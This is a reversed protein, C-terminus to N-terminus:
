RDTLEFERYTISPNGGGGQNAVALTIRYRGASLNSLDLSVAYTSTGGVASRADTWHMKLPSDQDALGVRQFASRLFGHDVREVSLSVETSDNAADPRYAEWYVGLPEGRMVRVEPIARALASDLQEPPEGGGRYLLLDSLGAGSAPPTAPYLTRTRALSHSASDTIEVGALVPRGPMMLTLTGSMTSDPASSGAIGDGLSAALRAEPSRLSDDHVFFAAVILTSDGRQFRALQSGAGVVRDVGVPAYRTTSQRAHLDWGEDGATTLSDLM